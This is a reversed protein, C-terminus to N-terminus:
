PKSLARQRSEAPTQAAKATKGLSSTGKKPKSGEQPMTPPQKPLYTNQISMIAQQSFTSDIPQKLLTSLGSRLKFPVLEGKALHEIMANNVKQVIKAHVAPYMMELAQVDQPKLNGNKLHTLISLPQEAIGLLRNYDNQAQQSPPIARDLVGPQNVRPKNMSLYDVSKQATEALATQHNPLYHGVNGGVQGMDAPNASLQSVKANLRDLKNKDPVLQDLKFATSVDFVARAAKNALLEGRAISDIADFAARLGPGSHAATNLIPDIMSPMIQTLFPKIARNGIMAGVIGGGPLGTMRGLIAGVSDAIAESAAKSANKSVFEAAREGLSPGEEAFLPSGPRPLNKIPEDYTPRFGATEAEAAKRALGETTNEGLGRAFDEAFKGAKDGVKSTWLESVAGFPVGVAAGLIGSLGVHMAATQVSNPDNVIYKSVEDGLTYLASEVGLRTAAAKVGTAGILRAAGKGAASLAGSQSLLASEGGTLLAPAVFGAAESVGHTIPNAEQRGKIDEVDVGLKKEALTALPGAAGKAAGELATLAMQGTTGYKAQKAAHQDDLQFDSTDGIPAEDPVFDVDGGEAFYECGAHHPRNTSCYQEVEGGGAMGQSPYCACNPHSKGHGKCSPNLCPPYDM